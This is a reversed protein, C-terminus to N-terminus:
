YQILVQRGRPDYRLHLPTGPLQGGGSVGGPVGASRHDVGGATSAPLRDDDGPHGGALSYGSLTLTFSLTILVIAWLM